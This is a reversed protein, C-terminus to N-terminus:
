FVNLQLLIYYIVLTLVTGLLAMGRQCLEPDYMRFVGRTYLVAGIVAFPFVACLAATLLLSLHFIM